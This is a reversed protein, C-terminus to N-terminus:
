TKKRSDIDAKIAAKIALQQWYAAREVWLAKREPEQTVEALRHCAEAKQRFVDADDPMLAPM